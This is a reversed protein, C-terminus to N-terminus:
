ELFERELNKIKELWSVYRQFVIPPTGALYHNHFCQSNLEWEILYMRQESAFTRIREMQWNQNAPITFEGAAVHENSDADWVRFSLLADERSDNCGVVPLYKGTGAEGIIVCIPVQVRRIFEFALKRKFYYDVVADSFQPWGDILNWWLIGSTQWKRLRTSEIFFKKAEAQVIQSALSFTELDQPVFGFFERMQNAMLQIRDRDIDQHRWHYVAHVQWEDNDKWSWQAEPSIFKRISSPSPCGHYGIEGIFHASHRTYFASKYYGRPGWLHQEPTSQWADARGVLSPPVYPSSPVFARYPDLREIVRPLVERTLRNRGPDRGESLYAMDIENDGCWLALSPHNRLRHVV